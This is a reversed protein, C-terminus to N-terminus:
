TMVKRFWNAFRDQVKSGQDEQECLVGDELGAEDHRQQAPDPKPARVGRLSTRREHESQDSRAEADQDVPQEREHHGEPHSRQAAGHDVEHHGLAHIWLRKQAPARKRAVVGRQEESQRQRDVEDRPAGPKQGEAVHQEHDPEGAHVEAVM